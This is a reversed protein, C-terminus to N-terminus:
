NRKDGAKRRTESRDMINHGAEQQKSTMVWGARRLVTGPKLVHDSKCFYFM